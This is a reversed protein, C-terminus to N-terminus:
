SGSGDSGGALASELAEYDNALAQSLAFLKELLDTAGQFQITLQDPQLRIGAPLGALTLDSFKKSPLPIAPGQLSQRAEGLFEIVRNKKNQVSPLAGGALLKELFAIVADRSVVFTRGVQYGSFRHLLYIAQHRRVDFLHEIASRDLLPPTNEAQLRELIAPTQELWLPHNPVPKRSLAVTQVFAPLKM